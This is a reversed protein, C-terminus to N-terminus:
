QSILHHVSYWKYLYQMEGWRQTTTNGTKEEQQGPLISAQKLIDTMTTRGVLPTLSGLMYTLPWVYVGRVVFYIGVLTVQLILVTM